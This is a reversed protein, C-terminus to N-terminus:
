SDEPTDILDPPLQILGYFEKRLQRLRSAVDPWPQLQFRERLTTLLEGEPKDYAHKGSQLAALTKLRDYALQELAFYGYRCGLELFEILNGGVVMNTEGAIPVTMVVPYEDPSRDPLVLFSYHM